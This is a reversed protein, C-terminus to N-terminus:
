VEECETVASNSQKRVRVNKFTTTELIYARVRAYGHFLVLRLKIIIAMLQLLHFYSIAIYYLRLLIYNDIDHIEM